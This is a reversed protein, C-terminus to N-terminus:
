IYRIVMHIEGCCPLHMPGHLHVWKDFKAGAIIPKLDIKASGVSQKGVIDKDYAHVHLCHHHEVDPLNLLIIENWTPYEATSVTTTRQKYHRDIYVEIHTDNPVRGYRRNHLNRAETISIQIQRNTM